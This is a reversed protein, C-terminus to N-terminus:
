CSVIAQDGPWAMTLAVPARTGSCVKARGTGITARTTPACSPSSCMSVTASPQVPLFTYTRMVSGRYRKGGRPEVGCVDGAASRTM